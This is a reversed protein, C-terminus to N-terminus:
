TTNLGLSTASHMWAQSPTRHIPRWPHPLVSHMKWPDQPASPSVPEENRSGWLKDEKRHRSLCDGWTWTLHPWRPTVHHLLSFSVQSQIVGLSLPSLRSLQVSWALLTGQAENTFVMKWGHLGERKPEENDVMVLAKKEFRREVTKSPRHWSPLHWLLPKCQQRAAWATRDPSVEKRPIKLEWGYSEIDKPASTGRARGVRGRLTGLEGAWGQDISCL